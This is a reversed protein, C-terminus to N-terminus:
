GTVAGASVPSILRCHSSRRVAIAPRRACGNRAPSTPRAPITSIASAPRFRIGTRTIPRGRTSGRGPTGTSATPRQESDPGHPPNPLLPHPRHNAKDHRYTRRACHRLRRARQSRQTLGDCHSRPSPRRPFSRSSPSLAVTSERPLDPPAPHPPTSDACRCCRRVPGAHDAAPPPQRRRASRHPPATDPRAVRRQKATTASSDVRLTATAHTTTSTVPSNWRLRRM